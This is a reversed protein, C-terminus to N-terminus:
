FFKLEIQDGDKMPYNFLDSNSQGNVTMAVQGTEGKFEKGWIKFFNALRTKDKTVLGSIELHIIGQQWDEKHTHIPQEIPRLGIGDKLPQKQGNVYIHLRPHWHIGSRAIIESEPTGPNSGKSLLWAGGGLILATFAIVTIILKM